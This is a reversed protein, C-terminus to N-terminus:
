EYYRIVGFQIDVSDIGNGVLSLLHKVIDFHLSHFNTIYSVPTRPTIVYPTPGDFSAVYFEGNIGRAHPIQRLENYSEPHTDCNVFDTYKANREKELKVLDLAQGCYMCYDGEEAEGKCDPCERYIDVWKQKPALIELYAGVYTKDM